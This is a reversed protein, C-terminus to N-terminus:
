KQVASGSGFVQTWSGDKAGVGIITYTAGIMNRHHGSSNYWADFAREPTPCGKAVNEGVGANYGCKGARESPTGDSGDHWIRGERAM